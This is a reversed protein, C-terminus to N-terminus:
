TKANAGRLVALLDNGIKTRLEDGVANMEAQRRRIAAGTTPPGNDRREYCAMGMWDDPAFPFVGDQERDAYPHGAVDRAPNQCRGYLLGANNKSHPVRELHRCTNCNQETADFLRKSRKRADGALPHCVYSCPAQPVVPGLTISERRVILAGTYQCVCLDYEEDAEPFPTPLVDAIVRINKASRFEYRM